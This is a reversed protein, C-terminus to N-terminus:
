SNPQARTENPPSLDCAKAVDAWFQRALAERDDDVIADAGSVTISIRDEFAFIWEAAGGIVGTMLPSGPPPPVKFHANVIARFETPATLGPLLETAAWPPVALIVTDKAEIAVPTGALDLSTVRWADMTLARVRQGIRVDAGKAQLFKLAPDVFASALTPHAIRPRYAHGGKALSEPDRRRRAERVSGGTRHQTCGASVAPASTGCRGRPM